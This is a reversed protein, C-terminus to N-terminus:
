LNEEILDGILAKVFLSGNIIKLHEDKMERLRDAAVDNIFVVGAFDLTISKRGGNRHRHINEILESVSEGDLRGDLRITTGARDEFAKTIRLM